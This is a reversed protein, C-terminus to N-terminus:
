RVDKDIFMNQKTIPTLNGFMTDSDTAFSWFAQGVSALSDARRHSGGVNRLFIVITPAGYRQRSSNQL